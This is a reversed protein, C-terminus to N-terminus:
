AAKVYSRSIGSKGNERPGGRECRREDRDKVRVTEKRNKSGKRALGVDGGQEFRRNRENWERERKEWPVM